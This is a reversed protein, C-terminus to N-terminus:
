GIRKACFSKTFMMEEEFNNEIKMFELTFM